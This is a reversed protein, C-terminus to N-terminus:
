GLHREVLGTDQDGQSRGNEIRSPLCGSSRGGTETHSTHTAQPDALGNVHLQLSGILGRGLGL